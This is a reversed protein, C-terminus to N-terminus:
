CYSSINANDNKRSLRVDLSEREILNENYNRIFLNKITTPAKNFAIFDIEVGDVTNITVDIDIWNVHSFWDTVSPPTNYNGNDGSRSKIIDINDGLFDLSFNISPKNKDYVYEIQLFNKLTLNNADDSSNEWNGGIESEIASIKIKNNRNVLSDCIFQKQFEENSLLDFVEHEKLSEDNGLFDFKSIEENIIRIVDGKM